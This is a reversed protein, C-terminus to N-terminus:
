THVIYIVLLIGSVGYLVAAPIIGQPILTGKYPEAGLMLTLGAAYAFVYSTIGLGSRHSANYYLVLGVGVTILIYGLMGPLFWVSFDDVLTTDILIDVIPALALALLALVWAIPELFHSIRRNRADPDTLSM